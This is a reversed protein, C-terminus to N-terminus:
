GTEIRRTSSLDTTLPLAPPTTFSRKWGAVWCREREHVGPGRWILTCPGGPPSRCSPRFRARERQVHRRAGAVVQDRHLATAQGAVERDADVMLLRHAAARGGSGGSAAHGVRQKVDAMEPDLEGRAAPGQEREVVDRERDRRALDQADDALRARALRQGARRDDAQEVRGPADGAALDAEVAPADVVQGVLLHPPHAAARDAGDELVRQGREIREVRDAPLQDLRDLGVKRDAGGLRAPAGHPQELFGANGGGLLPEVLVRVLERAAHPLPDHDGQREGALRLQDDGVLRGRREVDRDLRLDNGQELPEALLVARRDHQDGVVHAHDGLGAVPDRHHIGAPDDLDARDIGDDMRRGMGVGDAQHARDRRHVLVPRAEQLDVARHRSQGRNRAPQANLGRQGRAKSRQRTSRGSRSGAPAVWAAHQSCAAGSRAAAHAGQRRRLGRRQDLDLSQRLGEIDGSGPQVPHDLALGPLEDMGDVVDGEADVAARGQRQHAFRTAALARHRPEQDPRYAGVRPRIAKSPASVVPAARGFATRRRICIIKWSGYALRLGRQFTCSM